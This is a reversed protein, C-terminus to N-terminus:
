VYYTRGAVVPQSLEKKLDWDHKSTKIPTKRRDSKAVNLPWDM